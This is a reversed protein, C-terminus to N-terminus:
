RMLRSSLAAPAMEFLGDVFKQCFGRRPKPVRAFAGMASPRHLVQVGCERNISAVGLPINLQGDTNTACRSFLAKRFVNERGFAVIKSTAGSKQRLKACEM